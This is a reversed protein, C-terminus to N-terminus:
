GEGKFLTRLATKTKERFEMKKKVDIFCPYFRLFPKALLIQYQYDFSNLFIFIPITGMKM